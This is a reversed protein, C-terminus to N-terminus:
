LLFCKHATNTGLIETVSGLTLPLVELKPGKDWGGAPAGLSLSLM